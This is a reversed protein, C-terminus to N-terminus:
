CLRGRNQFFSLLSILDGQQRCTLTDARSNSLLLKTFQEWPLSYMHMLLLFTSCVMKWAMQTM